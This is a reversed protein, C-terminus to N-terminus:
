DVRPHSSELMRNLRHNLVALSSALDVNEVVVGEPVDILTPAFNWIAKAGASAILNVVEQAYDVPVAVIAIMVKKERIVRGLESMPYIRKGEITKGVLEPDVDFGAKIELGMSEFAPYNLLARGLRGCGILVAPSSGRYGLFIELDRILQRVSRGKKPRGSEHSVNALDKRVQEESYGLKEAIQPSSVYESGSDFLERLYNLYIPYRQLQHNSYTKM